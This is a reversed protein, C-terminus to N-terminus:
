FIARYTLDEADRGLGRRGVRRQDLNRRRFHLQQLTRCKEQQARMMRSRPPARQFKTGIADNAVPL